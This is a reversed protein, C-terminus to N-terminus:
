QCHYLRVTVESLLALGAVVVLAEGGEEGLSTRVGRGSRERLGSVRALMRCLAVAFVNGTSDVAIELGIDDVLDASTGVAAQEM